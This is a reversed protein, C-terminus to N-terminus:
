RGGGITPFRTYGDLSGVPAASGLWSGGPPAVVRWDGDDWQLQVRTAARVVQDSDGPGASVVDVSATEPTYGQWRFAELTAYARPTGPALPATNISALMGARDPGVFQTNVTSTATALGWRPDSRVSLHVAALLAGLPTRAFGGARDGAVAHPGDSASYPLRFGHFDRWVLGSTPTAPSSQLQEDLAAPPRHVHEGPGDPILAFGGLALGGAIAVGILVHRRNM